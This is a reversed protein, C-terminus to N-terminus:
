GRRSAARHQLRELREPWPEDELPLVLHGAGPLVQLEADPLAALMARAASVSRVIRDRDAAFLAVPAALRPLEAVLDLGQIMRLRRRYGDDFWTGGVAQFARVVEPNRRAGFLAWPALARRGLRFLSPTVLPALARSVRLRGPSPYRAFSNVIAAGRVLDPHDLAMRLAVAGGFSEAVLLTADVGAGRLEAAASAALAGYSDEGEAEYRLCVLRFRRELREACGLLLRGTGDIGPLYALAPGHGRVDLVRAIM